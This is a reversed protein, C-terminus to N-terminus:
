AVQGVPELPPEIQRPSQQTDAFVYHPATSFAGGSTPASKCIRGLTGDQVFGVAQAVLNICVM